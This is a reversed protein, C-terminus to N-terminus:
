SETNYVCMCLCVCTALIIHSLINEQVTQLHSTGCQMCTYHDSPKFNQKQLKKSSINSHDDIPNSKTYHCRLLCREMSRIAPTLDYFDCVSTFNYSGTSVDTKSSDTSQKAKSNSDQHLPVSDRVSDRFLRDSVSNGIKQWFM